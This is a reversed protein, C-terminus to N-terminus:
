KAYISTEEIESKPINKISLEKGKEQQETSDFDIPKIELILDM